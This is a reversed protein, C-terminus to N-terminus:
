KRKYKFCITFQTGGDIKMEITGGLERTVAAVALQLGLSPPNMIDIKLPIGKGDDKIMLKVNEADLESLNISVNGGKGLPFAHKFANSILEAIVMGIAIGQDMNLAVDCKGVTLSIGKSSAGYAQRLNRCLKKLYVKFDIKALDDSQYLSEHILSMANIRDRCEEFVKGLNADNIRRSHMRLLSVIVQMNNKVRHHIERLLIVKEDFSSSLQKETQKKETVDFAYHLYMDHSVPVWYTEFIKGFAKVEPAILPKLDSLAEDALCFTCHSCLGTTTKHQNIYEKDKEPIYDSHGFDQWCIGGIRAGINRAVKNAFLVTRNKKILMTPYPLSEILTNRLQMEENLRKEAKLKETVDTIISIIGEIDGQINRVYNWNIQIKIIREDIRMNTSFYPEPSPQNKIIHRYYEKSKEKDKEKVIFDWIYKGVLQNDNYGLIQQHAPNSFIIKGDCDTLQIGFPSTNLLTRYKEESEKLKKLMHKNESIDIHTGTARLPKGEKSWEFVKGRDVVWVWHGDKHKMRAECIYYDTKGAFHEKLLKNSKELDDPHCLDGWTKISVPSLEELTYGLIDAWRANFLTEGTQINWDWLGINAGRIVLDLREESIQVEKKAMKLNIFLQANGIATGVLSGITSCISVDHKSLIDPHRTLINMVGVIEDVAYVPVGIFSNLNEETSVSRAVRKDHSSNEPIYIPEGTQAICGTLGEGPQIHLNEYATVFNQSLGLSAGWSLCGTVQNKLFIIGASANVMELTNKLIGNLIAELSLTSNALIGIKYIKNLKHNQLLAEEAQRRDYKAQELEQIKKELEEYTPKKKM